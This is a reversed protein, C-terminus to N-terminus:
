QAIYNNCCARQDTINEGDIDGKGDDICRRLLSSM